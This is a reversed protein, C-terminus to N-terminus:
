WYTGDYDLGNEGWYTAQITNEAWADTPNTTDNTTVRLSSTGSTGIYGGGAVWNGDSGARLSNLLYNGFNSTRETWTIPETSGSRRRKTFLGNLGKHM